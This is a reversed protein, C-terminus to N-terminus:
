GHDVMGDEEEVVMKVARPDVARVTPASSPAKGRTSLSAVKDKPAMPGLLVLLLLLQCIPLYQHSRGSWWHGIPPQLHWDGETPGVVPEAKIM